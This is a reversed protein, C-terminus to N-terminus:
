VAKKIESTDRKPFGHMVTFVVFLMVAIIILEALICLYLCCTRSALRVREVHRAEDRLGTTAGEVHVDLNSLIKTKAPQPNLTSTSNTEHTKPFPSTKGYPVTSLHSQHSSNTLEHYYLLLTWLTPPSHPTLLLM